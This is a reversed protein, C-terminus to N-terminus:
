PNPLFEFKRIAGAKTTNDSNYPVIIAYDFSFQWHEVMTATLHELGNEELLSKDDCKSKYQVGVPFPLNPLTDLFWHTGDTARHNLVSDIDERTLLGVTGDPLFYGTGRKGAGVTVRNSFTFNKGSFQFTTNVGNGAGQNIYRSVIPMITHSAIVRTTPTYFDDAFNIAEIDNFFFDQKNAPVQIAGGALAYDGGAGIIQSGYVQTKQTDLTTDLDQEIHVKFAEVIESIKQAFDADRTIQNTKYQSPVMLVNAVATKWVVQVLDSESQGGDIVCSRVNSITVNGKKLVPVDLKRGVSDKAKQKLDQSVVSNQSNTMELVATLLGTQTLRLEDRDNQSPYNVRIDQLYTKALSM